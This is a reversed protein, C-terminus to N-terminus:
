GLSVLIFMIYGMHKYKKTRNHLCSIHSHKLPPGNELHYISTLTRVYDVGVNETVRERM